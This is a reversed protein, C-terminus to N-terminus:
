EFHVLDFLDLQFKPPWDQIERYVGEAFSQNESIFKRADEEVHDIRYRYKKNYGEEDIEKPNWGYRNEYRSHGYHIHLIEHILTQRKSEDTQDESIEIEYYTRLSSSDPTLRVCGLSRHFNQPCFSIKKIKKIIIDILDEKTLENM